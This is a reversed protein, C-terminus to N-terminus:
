FKLNLSASYVRGYIDAVGADYSLFGLVFPAEKNFVNKVALNVTAGGFLAAIDYSVNVDTRFYASIKRSTTAALYTPDDFYSDVYALRAGAAIPGQRLTADLTSRLKPLSGFLSSFEGKYSVFGRDDASDAEMKLLYSANLVLDLTTAPTLSAVYSAEFDMVDMKRGAINTLLAYIIVDEGGIGINPGRDVRGPVTGSIVDQPNPSVVVGDQKVKFYDLSLRLNNLSEPELVAGLSFTKADEAKLDPNGGTIFQADVLANGEQPDEVIGTGVSQLPSIQELYPARFSESYSTRLTLSPTAKWRLSALPKTASGFDSYHEYRGALGLELRPAADTEGSLLPVQLEVYAAKVNRDLDFAQIAITDAFDGRETLSDTSAGAEDRRYELGAALKLEGAPLDRIPGAIGVNVSPSRFKQSQASTGIVGAYQAASNALNGFPNFADPGSRGLAARLGSLSISNPVDIDTDLTFYGIAAEFDLRDMLKTRVGISARATNRDIFRRSGTTGFPSARPGGVDLPRWAFSGLIDVGFVNYPNTAPVGGISALDIVPSGEAVYAREAAYFGDMFVQLSSSALPANAGFYVSTRELDGLATVGSAPRDHADRAFDFERFDAASTPTEGVGVIDTNVVIDSPQGPLFGAIRAPNNASSRFDFSGFRTFDNTSTPNRELALISERNFHTASVFFGKEEDGGGLYGSVQTIPASGDTTNGYSASIGAGDGARRTVINVVGAVADSGYLAGAGARLVEIREVADPPITSYNAPGNSSFRRGNLLVLTYQEGLGRLNLTAYKEAGGAVGNGEGSKFGALAPLTRLFEELTPAGSQKLSEADLVFVPLAGDEPPGEARLRSGIVVVEDPETAPASSDQASATQVVSSSLTVALCGWALANKTDIKM